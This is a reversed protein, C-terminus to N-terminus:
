STPTRCRPWFAEWGGTSATIARLRAMAEANRTQWRMGSGKLRRGVVNKCGSEMPGSGIDIGARRFDPYRLRHRRKRVYGTLGEVAQRKAGGTRRRWHRLSALLAGPGHTMVQGLRGRVWHLGRPDGEEYMVRGCSWVQESLHYYDVVETAGPFQIAMQTWIWDAGDGITIRQAARLAGVAEGHERLMGGFTESSGLTAVYHRQSKDESYFMGLKVERWGAETNVSTGDASIYARSRGGRVKFNLASEEGCLVGSEQVTQVARAVEETVRRVTEPSVRLGALEKLEESAEEFSHASGCRSILRRAGVSYSRRELGVEEDFPVRSQRCRDCYYYRREFEMEGVMTVATKTQWYAMRMRAGCTCAPRGGGRNSEHRYTLAAKLVQAFRVVAQRRVKPEVEELVKGETAAQVEEFLEKCDERFAAVIEKLVERYRM